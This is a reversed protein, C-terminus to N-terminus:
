IMRRLEDIVENLSPLVAETMRKHKEDPQKLDPICIVPIKARYAAEIGTESDELVLAQSPAVELKECAKLFIDPAPKGAKVDPGCVVADFYQLVSSTRLLREVRKRDSSTAMAIKLHQMQCYNLLEMLGPKLPAMQNEWEERFDEFYEFYDENQFNLYYLERVSDLGRDISKGTFCICYDDLSLQVGLTQFYKGFFQYNVIETDIMLGDMDFIVAKMM